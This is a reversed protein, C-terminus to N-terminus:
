EVARGEAQIGLESSPSEISYGLKVLLKIANLATARDYEKDAEPLCEYPILNPHLKRAESRFSGYRWGEDMRKKSWVEHTNRAITETLRVLGEPLIVDSLDAPNPIYHTDNKKVRSLYYM